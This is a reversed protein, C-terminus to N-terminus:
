SVFDTSLANQFLFPYYSFFKSGGGVYVHLYVIDALLSDIVKESLQVPYVAFEKRLLSFHSEKYLDFIVFKLLV